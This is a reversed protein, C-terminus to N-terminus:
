YSHNRRWFAVAKDVTGYREKIYRIGGRAEEVANGFSNQGQPNYHYNARTLQFLGRASSRRNQVGVRGESEQAVIFKLGSRWSDPVGELAMAQKLAVSVEAPLNATSKEVWARRHTKHAHHVHQALIKHFESTGHKSVHRKSPSRIAATTGALREVDSM